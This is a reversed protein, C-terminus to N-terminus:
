LQCQASEDYHYDGEKVELDLEMGVDFAVRTGPLDQVYVRQINADVLEVNGIRHINWTYLNL